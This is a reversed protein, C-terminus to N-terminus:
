RVPFPYMIWALALSLFIMAGGLVLGLRWRSRPDSRLLFAFFTSVIASFLVLNLFHSRM